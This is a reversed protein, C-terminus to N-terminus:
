SLRSSPGRIVRKAQLAVVNGGVAKGFSNGDIPTYLKMAPQGYDGQKGDPRLALASIGSASSAIGSSHPFTNSGQIHWAM